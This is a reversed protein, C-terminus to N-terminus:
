WIGGIAAGQTKREQMSKRSRGIGWYRFGANEAQEIDFINRGDILVDGRMLQFVESLDLKQFEAWETIVILADCNEALDRADAAYEVALDPHQSSFEEIAAPDYAKVRAGMKLLASIVDLSPADRVDDTDPKFSLGLLGITKGKVIQLATQLKRIVMQRQRVNVNRASTMLEPEYDYERAMEILASVDKGFCSGGWGIGANLFKDGIRRDLGIGHAVNRIDAGTLECLNAIENAFSIKLALFSNAAYKIMEASTLDTKVFPINELGSPRPAITAPPDFSQELLPAYLNELTEFAKEENAGVVIRDAYFTDSIATGERLFEPNSVVTLNSFIEEISLLSRDKSSTKRYLEEIEEKVLMEVWNGSGLPVTSKNVIVRFSKEGKESASYICKGIEKAAAKVYSLDPSGEANPPTGVAIFFVDSACGSEDLRTSFSLNGNKIGSKLLEDLGPEYIPSIGARMKEVKAEDIDVCLVKHGLYSLSAGTVLGVYGTGIICVNM